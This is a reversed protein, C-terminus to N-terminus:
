VSKVHSVCPNSFILTLSLSLPFFSFDRGGRKTMGKDIPPTHRGGGVGIIKRCTCTLYINRKVLAVNQQKKYAWLDKIETIAVHTAAGGGCGVGGKSPRAGHKDGYDDEKCTIIQRHPSPADLSCFVGRHPVM